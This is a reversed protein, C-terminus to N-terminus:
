RWASLTLVSSRNVSLWAEMREIGTLGRPALTARDPGNEYTVVTVRLPPGAPDPGSRSSRDTDATRDISDPM